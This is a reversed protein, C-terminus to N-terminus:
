QNDLHDQVLNAVHDELLAKLKGEFTIEQVPTPSPATAENVLGFKYATDIHILKKIRKVKNYTRPHAQWTGSIDVEVFDKVDSGSKGSIDCIYTTVVAM